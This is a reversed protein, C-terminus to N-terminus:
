KTAKRRKRQRRYIALGITVFTILIPILAINIFRVKSELGEIDKRLEHQVQRLEARIAVIDDRFSELAEQQEKSLILGKNTLQEQGSLTRLQKEAEKLKKQLAQEQARYKNEAIKELSRLKTFPRSSTGRSRLNILSANGTLNDLANIIFDANNSTPVIIPQGFFDESQVWFHDELLDTDAVLIVNIDGETKEPKEKEIGEPFATKVHGSLRTAVMYPKQESKFENILAMVDPKGMFKVAPIQMAEPSTFILPEIKTQAGEIKKFAGTTALTIRTLDSTIIDSPSTNESGASIWGVYDIVMPNNPDGGSVRDPPFARMINSGCLSAVCNRGSSMLGTSLGLAVSIVLSEESM